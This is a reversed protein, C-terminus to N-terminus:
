EKGTLYACLEQNVLSPGRDSHIFALIGFVTFLQILCEIVTSASIDPRPFVFPFHSYEHVVSLIYVNKNNSPLPGKFDINLREFPKTAKILYSRNPQHYRPKCKYCIQCSNTMRKIEEVSFPLNQASHASGPEQGRNSLCGSCRCSGQCM